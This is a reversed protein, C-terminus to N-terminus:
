TPQRRYQLNYLTCLILIDQCCLHFTETNTEPSMDNGARYQM